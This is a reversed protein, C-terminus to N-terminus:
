RSVSLTLIKISYISLNRMREDDAPMYM